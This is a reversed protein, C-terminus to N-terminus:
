RIQWKGVTGLMQSWLECAFCFRFYANRSGDACQVAPPVYRSGLVLFFPTRLDRLPKSRTACKRPLHLKPPPQLVLCAGVLGWILIKKGGWVPKLIHEDIRFLECVEIIVNLRGKPVLRCGQVVVALGRISDRDIWRSPNFSMKAPVHCHHSQINDLLLQFASREM